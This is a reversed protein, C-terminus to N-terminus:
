ALKANDASASKEDEQKCLGFSNMKSQVRGLETNLQEIYATCVEGYLDRAREEPIDATVQIEEDVMLMLLADFLNKIQEENTEDDLDLDQNTGGVDFRLLNHGDDDLVLSAKVIQATMFTVGKTLRKM